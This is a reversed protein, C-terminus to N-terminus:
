KSGSRRGISWDGRVRGLFDVTPSKYATPPISAFLPLNVYYTEPKELMSHKLKHMLEYANSLM